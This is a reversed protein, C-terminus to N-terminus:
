IAPMDRRSSQILHVILVSHDCLQAVCSVLTDYFDDNGKFDTSLTVCLWERFRKAKKVTFSTNKRADAYAVQENAELGKTAAEERREYETVRTLFSSSTPQVPCEPTWVNLSGLVHHAIHRHGDGYKPWAGPGRKKAEKEAIFSALRFAFPKNTRCVYQLDDVSLGRAGRLRSADACLVVLERLQQLVIDEVIKIVKPGALRIGLVTAIASIEESYRYSMESDAKDDIRKSSASGRRDSASKRRRKPASEQTHQSPNTASGQQSPVVSGPSPPVQAQSKLAAAAALVPSQATQALMTVDESSSASAKRGRPAANGAGHVTAPHADALVWPTTGQQAVAVPNGSVALYTAPSVLIAVQNTAVAPHVHGSPMTAAYAAQAPHAIPQATADTVLPEQRGGMQVASVQYM